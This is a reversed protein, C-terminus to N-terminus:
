ILVHSTHDSESQGLPPKKTIKIKKHVNTNQSCKHRYLPILDGPCSDCLQSSGHSHQNEPLAALESGSLWRDRWGM